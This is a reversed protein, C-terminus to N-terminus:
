DYQSHTIITPSRMLVGKVEQQLWQEFLENLLRQSISEDLQAPMRKDVRLIVFWSELQLPPMLEGIPLTALIHAFQPHYAGLEVPGILGQTEAEPGQSYEAALEAFTQENGQIRFYLEDAIGPDQVRILSYVVRELQASRELFYSSLHHQWKQQKFTQLKLAREAEDNAPSVSLGELENSPLSAIAQDILLERVLTELLHYHQLLPLLEESEIAQHNIQLITSM